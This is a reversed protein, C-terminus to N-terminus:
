PRVHDGAPQLPPAAFFSPKIVCEPPIIPFACIRGGNDFVASGSIAQVSM